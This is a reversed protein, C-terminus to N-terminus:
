AANMFLPVVGGVVRGCCGAIGGVMWEYLRLSLFPSASIPCDFRALPNGVQNGAYPDKRAIKPNSVLPDVQNEGVM